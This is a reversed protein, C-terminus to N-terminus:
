DPWRCDRAADLSARSAILISDHTGLLRVHLGDPSYRTEADRVIGDISAPQQLMLAMVALIFIVSM